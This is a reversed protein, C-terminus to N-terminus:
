GAIRPVNRRRRLHCDDDIRVGEGEMRLKRIELKWLPDARRIQRESSTVVELEQDSRRLAKEISSYNLENPSKVKPQSAHTTHDFPDPDHEPRPIRISRGLGGATPVIM